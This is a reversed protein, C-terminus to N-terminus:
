LDMMEIGPNKCFDYFNCLVFDIHPIQLTDAEKQHKKNKRDFLIGSAVEFSITKMRGEFSEPNNTIEEIPLFPIKYKQLHIATGGTSIITINKKVLVKAIKEVSTKDFVSILAYSQNNKQKM